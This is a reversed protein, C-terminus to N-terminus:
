QYNCQLNNYSFLDMRKKLCLVLNRDTNRINFIGLCKPFFLPLILELFFGKALYGHFAERMM